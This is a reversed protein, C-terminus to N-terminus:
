GNGNGIPTGAGLRASWLGLSVLVGQLLDLKVGYQPLFGRAITVVATAVAAWFTKSKWFPKM